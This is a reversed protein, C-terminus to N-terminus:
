EHGGGQGAGGETGHKMEEVAERKELVAKRFPRLAFVDPVRRGEASYSLYLPRGAGPDTSPALFVRGLHARLGTYDTAFTGDRIPGTASGPGRACLNNNRL